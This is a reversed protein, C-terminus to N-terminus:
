SQTKQQNFYDVENIVALLAKAREQEDSIKQAVSYAEKLLDQNDTSQIMMMLTRFKDEPAQDLQEVLPALQQLAEKKIDALDGTAETPQAPATTPSTDDSTASSDNTDSQSNDDTQAGFSDTPPSATESSDVETNQPTDLQAEQTDQTSEGVGNLVNDDSPPVVIPSTIQGSGIQNDDQQNDQGFM